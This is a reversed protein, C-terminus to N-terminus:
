GIWLHSLSCHSYFPTSPALAGPAASRLLNRDAQVAAQMPPPASPPAITAGDYEPVMFLTGTRPYTWDCVTGAHILLTRDIM